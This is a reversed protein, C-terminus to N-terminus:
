SLERPDYLSLGDRNACLNLLQRSVRSLELILKGANLDGEEFLPELQRELREISNLSTTIMEFAREVRRERIVHSRNLHLREVLYRSVLYRGRLICNVNVDFLESYDVRSPDPFHKQEWDREEHDFWESGKFINCVACAYFLNLYDNELDPFHKKPRYHEVHFFRTGGFVQDRISCYVCRRDAEIALQPKWDSYTGTAPQDEAKKKIIKWKM